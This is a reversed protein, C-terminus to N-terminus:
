YRQGSKRLHVMPKREPDSFRGGVVEGLFIRHDGSDVHGVPNCELHGIAAQLIPVGRSCPQTELGGFAPAGPEFGKGFHKILYNGGEGVLNLVFPSGGSLWDAIYRGHKVAVTVSPPEFGAQMVWSALMGTAQGDSLVTLIFIGSPIRGLAADASSEDTM